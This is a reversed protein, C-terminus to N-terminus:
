QVISQSRICISKIYLNKETETSLSHGGEIKNQLITLCKKINEPANGFNEQWQADTYVNCVNEMIDHELVFPNQCDSAINTSSVGSFKQLMQYCGIQVRTFPSTKNSEPSSGPVSVVIPLDVQRKNRCTHCMAFFCAIFISILVLVGHSLVLIDTDQLNTFDPVMSNPDFSNKQMIKHTWDMYSDKGFSRSLRLLASDRKVYKTVSTQVLMNPKHGKKSSTAVEVTQPHYKALRQALRQALRKAIRQAPTGAINEPSQFEDADIGQIANNYPTTVGTSV